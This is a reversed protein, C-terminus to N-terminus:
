RDLEPLNDQEPVESKDYRSAHFKTDLLSLFEPVAHPLSRENKMSRQHERNEIEETEAQLFTGTSIEWLILTRFTLPLQKRGFKYASGILHDHVCATFMQNGSTSASKGVEQGTEGDGNKCQYNSDRGAPKRYV